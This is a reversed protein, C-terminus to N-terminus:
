FIKFYCTSKGTNKGMNKFRWAVQFDPCKDPSTGLDGAQTSM